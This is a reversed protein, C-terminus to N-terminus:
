GEGGDLPKGCGQCFKAAPDNQHGCSPCRGPVLVPKGCGSCFKVTADNEVGCSCLIKAPKKPLKDAMKKVAAKGQELAKKYGEPDKAKKKKLVLLVVIALVAIVVAIIILTRQMAAKKAAQEREAKLIERYPTNLFATEPCLIGERITVRELSTCNEFARESIGGNPDPTGTIAVSFLSTCGSFAGSGISCVSPMFVSTLSTCGKFMDNSVYRVGDSITVSTLSTCGSFIGDRLRLDGENNEDLVPGPVTVSTLSTCGAFAFADIRAMSDPLTINALSTCNQFASKGIEKTNDPININTLSACNEFACDGITSYGFNFNDPMVVTTLSTCGSFSNSYIQELSDPLTVSTIDTNNQFAGSINTIGDPIVIDGGPGRYAVVQIQDLASFYSIGFDGWWEDVYNHNGSAFAPITLGLCLLAALALSLLRKKM